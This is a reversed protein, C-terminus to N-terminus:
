PSRPEGAPITRGRRVVLGAGRAPRKRAWAKAVRDCALYEFLVEREDPGGGMYRYLGDPPRELIDPHKVRIKACVALAEDRDQFSVRQSAM